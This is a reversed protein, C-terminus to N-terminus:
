AGAEAKEAKEPAWEDGWDQIAEWPEIEEALDQPQRAYAEAEELEMQRIKIRHLAQRLSDRLFASRTTDMEEVVKDVEALLPEEITVQITKM